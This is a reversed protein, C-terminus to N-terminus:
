ERFVSTFLCTFGQQRMDAIWHVITKADFCMQTVMYSAFPEKERLANLLQHDDIFPHGEPYGAVGIQGFRHNSQAM